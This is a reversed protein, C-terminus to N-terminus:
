GSCGCRKHEVIIVQRNEFRFCLKCSRVDDCQSRVACSHILQKLSKAPGSRRGRWVARNLATGRDSRSFPRKSCRRMPASDILM